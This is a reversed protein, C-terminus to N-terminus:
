ISFGSKSVKIDGVGGKTGGGPLPKKKKEGYNFTKTERKEGWLYVRSFAKEGNTKWRKRITKQFYYEKKKEGRSIDKKKNRPNSERKRM